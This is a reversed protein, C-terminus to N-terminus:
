GNSGGTRYMKIAAELRGEAFTWGDAAEKWSARAEDREARLDDLAALMGAAVDSSVVRSRLGLRLEHEVASRVEALREESIASETPADTM